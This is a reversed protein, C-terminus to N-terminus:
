VKPPTSEKDQLPYASEPGPLLLKALGQNALWVWFGEVVDDKPMTKELQKLRKRVAANLEYVISFAAETPKPGKPQPLFLVEVEGSSAEGFVVAHAPGVEGKKKM